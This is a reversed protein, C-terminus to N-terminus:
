VRNCLLSLMEPRQQTTAVANAHHIVYEPSMAFCTPLEQPDDNHGLTLGKHEMSCKYENLYMAMDLAIAGVDYTVCTLSVDFLRYCIIHYHVYM